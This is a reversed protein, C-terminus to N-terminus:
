RRPSGTSKRRLPCALPPSWPAPSGPGSNRSAGYTAVTAGTAATALGLALWRKRSRLVGRRGPLTAIVDQRGAVFAPVLAALLGTLVAVAAVGALALPYARYGGARYHTLHETVLPRGALALAVGVLVGLVATAGGLVAGDALVIRRLQAPTGGGVAVLALERQRRRAGVAFAPGALLVVELVGLGAVLGGLTLTRRRQTDDEPRHPPDLLVARSRVLLGFENLRQVDPWTFASPTDVLWGDDANDPDRHKPKPPAPFGDPHLLITEDLRRHQPTVPPPPRPVPRDGAQRQGYAAV